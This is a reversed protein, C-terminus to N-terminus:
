RALANESQQAQQLLLANRAAIDSVLRNAMTDYQPAVRRQGMQSMLYNRMSGSVLQPTVAGLTAGAGAGAGAGTAGGMLGGVGAGVVGGLGAGLVSGSSPTGVRAPSQAVRPFVNAFEGILKLDGTLYKGSQIDRAIKSPIISGSGELIADEITHSIAMRQRSARFQDLMAQADPKGIASLHREIQNELASSVDLQASALANDGKKFNGQAQERLRRSVDIADGADFKGVTYKEILKGVEDPVAGPFSASAGKFKSEISVLDDLYANDAAIEGLQTLPKYGKAYEDARIKKMADSTLAATEPLGAARRALRDAVAQNEVSMLQELYTKGAIREALINGGTPSVSGPTVKFGEGQARALLADRTANIQQQKSLDSPLFREKLALAGQAPKTVVSLPNTATAARTLGAATGTAGATGAAAAGGSLITSLDAAAGVPDEALTRKLSEYSGYRDKYMGGVAEAAQVARKAAEPSSNFQEIFQRAREPTAKQLAGAGIDWIAGLTQVPQTVAEYLGSAFKKASAPLNSIAAGPVEALGYTRRAAPIGESPTAPTLSRLYADPDFAPAPAAQAPAVNQLYADPDFAM